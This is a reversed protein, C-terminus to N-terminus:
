ARWAIIWTSHGNAIIEDETNYWLKIDNNFEFVSDLLSYNCRLTNSWTEINMQCGAANKINNNYTKSEGEEWSISWRTVKMKVDVLRHKDLRLVDDCITSDLQHMNRSCLIHWRPLIVIKTSLSQMAEFKLPLDDNGYNFEPFAHKNWVASIEEFSLRM